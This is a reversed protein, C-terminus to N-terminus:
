RLPDESNEQLYSLKFVFVKYTVNSQVTEVLFKAVMSTNSITQCVMTAIWLGVPPDQACFHNLLDQLILKYAQLRQM